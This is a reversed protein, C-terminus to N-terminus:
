WSGDPLLLEIFTDYGGNSTREEVGDTPDFDVLGDFRGAVNVFGNSSLEVAYSNEFGMGGWTSGWIYGGDSDLKVVYADAEGVATYEDTETGPDFDMTGNYHGCMFVNGSADFACGWTNDHGAEAFWDVWVLAGTTDYKAIYGDYSGAGTHVSGSGPDMDIETSSSGGNAYINGSDDAIMDNFQEWGDGGIAWSWDWGGDSDFRIMYADGLGSSTENQTGSTPDLDVTNQFTGAASPNGSGDVACRFCYTTGGAGWTQGWEYTGGTTMKILYGDTVNGSGSTATYEDVGSTPDIDATGFFYGTIYLYDDGYLAIDFATVDQSGGWSYGWEYNGDSDYKWLFGDLRGNGSSATHMDVGDGPDFDIEGNFHGVVYLNDDSDIVIEWVYSHYGDMSPWSYGWEFDGNVDVKNMWMNGGGVQTHPDNGDPDLNADGFFYGGSYKAGASDTAFGLIYETGTGGFTIVSGSEDSVIINYPGGQTTDIGDFVDVYIDYSGIGFDGWIVPLTVEDDPTPPGADEDVVYWTFTHTQDDDPDDFIAWYTKEADPTVLQEYEGSGEVDEIGLVDPPTNTGSGAVYLDYRFYASLPAAEALNPTGFDNSYDRDECQVIVWFENGTVGKIDDAPIEVHYTSINDGGSTGITGADFQTPSSTVTSEIIINYDAPMGTDTEWAFIDMDLILSGGNDDDDVYWIDDTVEVSCAQAEPANAPHNDEGEWSAIVAYAYQIGTANPFRLYYNRDNTAGASFTGHGSTGDLFGFLDENTDLGDAFYRYPCITANGLFGPSALDGPTYNFLPIGGESFETINFWRTYGDPGGNGGDPNAFMFQDEGLVPYAVGTSDLEMSGNGMFVGRVDYGNYQTMGPFPHILSVDIDIDTYDTGVSIGNISFGLRPPSGNLFNTVNATFMANRDNLAEVKGSEPDISVSYFGWLHTHALDRPSSLEYPDGVPPAVPNGAGGGGSSGSCGIVLISIFLVLIAIRKM